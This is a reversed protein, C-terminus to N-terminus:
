YIRMIEAYSDTGHLTSNGGINHSVSFYIKDGATLYRTTTGNGSVGLTAPGQTNTRWMILQAGNKYIKYTLTAGNVLDINPTFTIRYYGTSPVTYTSNTTNFNDGVDIIETNFLVTTETTNPITQNTARTVVALSNRLTSIITEGSFSNAGTWNNNGSSTISGSFTNAGTFTQTAALVAGGSTSPLNTLQSGDVAPLKSLADLKVLQSAGNFTNGQLTVSSSKASFTAATLALSVGDALYSTTAININASGDFSVGNITRATALKTATASNGTVDSPQACVAAGSANVGLAVNPLTCDTPDAALASATVANGGTDLKGSLATTVTSLNVAAQPVSVITAAASGPGSATVNGTLATIYNGAAQKGNFTSWDTSTLFGKAGAGAAQGNTYDLSVVGAAVNFDNATLDAEKVITADANEKGSLATTVTSLNVASQPVSVITAKAEYYDPRQTYPNLKWEASSLGASLVVFFLAIIKRM